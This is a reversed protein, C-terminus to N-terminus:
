ADADRDVREGRPAALDVRDLVDGAEVRRDGRAQEGRLVERTGSTLSVSIQVWELAGM